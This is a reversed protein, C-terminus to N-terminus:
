NTSLEKQSYLYEIVRALLLQVPDRIQEPLLDLDYLLGELPQSTFDKMESDNWSKRLTALTVGKPLQEEIKGTEDPSRDALFVNKKMGDSTESYTLHSTVKSKLEELYKNRIEYSDTVEKNNFNKAIQSLNACNEFDFLGLFNESDTSDLSFNYHYFM